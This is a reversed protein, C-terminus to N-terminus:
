PTKRPDSIKRSPKSKPRTSTKPTDNDSVLIKIANEIKEIREPLQDLEGIRSNVLDIIIDSGRTQTIAEIIPTFHKKMSEKVRESRIEEKIMTEARRISIHNTYIFGIVLLFGILSFQFYLLIEYFGIIKSFFAEDHVTQRNEDIINAYNIQYWLNWDPKTLWFFYINLCISAILAIVFFCLILNRVMIM